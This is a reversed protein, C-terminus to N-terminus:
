FRNLFFKNKIIFNLLAQQTNKGGAAIYHGCDLNIANYPSQDMAIDWAYDSAQTHAHYAVHMKNKEALKGLGILLGGGSM